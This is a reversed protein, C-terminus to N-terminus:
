LLPRTGDTMGQGLTTKVLMGSPISTRSPGEPSLIYAVRAHFIPSVTYSEQRRRMQAPGGVRNLSCTAFCCGLVCTNGKVVVSCVTNSVGSVRHIYKKSEKTFWLQAGFVELRKLLPMSCKKLTTQRRSMSGPSGIVPTYATLHQTALVHFNTISWALLHTPSSTTLQSPVSTPSQGLQYLLFGTTTLM